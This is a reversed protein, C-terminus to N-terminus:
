LPPRVPLMPPAISDRLDVSVPRSRVRRKTVHGDPSVAAPIIQEDVTDRGYDFADDVSRDGIRLRTMSATQSRLLGDAEARTQPTRDNFSPAPLPALRDLAFPGGATKLPTITPPSRAIPTSGNSPVPAPKRKAGTRPGMLPNIALPSLASRYSSARKVPTHAPSSLFVSGGDDDEIPIPAPALTPQARRSVRTRPATPMASGFADFDTVVSSSSSSAAAFAPFSLKALLPSDLPSPQPRGAANRTSLPPARLAASATARSSPRPNYAYTPSDLMPNTTMPPFPCHGWTLFSAAVVRHHPIEVRVLHFPV